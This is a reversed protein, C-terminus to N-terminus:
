RRRRLFGAAALLTIWYIGSARRAPSSSCECGDDDDGASDDDGAADDDDTTDDDDDAVPDPPAVFDGLFALDADVRMDWGFGLCPDEDEYVHVAKNVGAVYWTGELEVLGPGGSDGTCTNTDQTYHYYADDWYEEVAIETMWKTGADQSQYETLAGYGVYVFDLGLWSDNFPTANILIPDIGDVPDDLRLVAIDHPHEPDVDYDPHIFVEDVSYVEGPDMDFVDVGTFFMDGTSSASACHAATLVIQPDILTATCLFYSTGEGALYAGVAPWDDETCETGGVIPQNLLQIPGAPGSSGDPACAPLQAVLLWCALGLGPRCPINRM